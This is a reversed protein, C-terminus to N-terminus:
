CLIAKGSIKRIQGHYVSRPIVFSKTYPEIYDIFCLLKPNASKIILHIFEEINSTPLEELREFFFAIATNCRYITLNVLQNLINVLSEVDYKLFSILEENSMLDLFNMDILYYWILPSSEKSLKMYLTKHKEPSFFKIRELFPIEFCRICQNIAKKAEKVISEKVLKIAVEEFDDLVSLFEEKQLYDLYGEQGLYEFVNLNGEALRKAIEEKFIKRAANDGEETLRKLLPFALSRHLFRSDYDNEAWVQLNSCHGWFEVEPPIIQPTDGELRSDLKEAAEDISKIGEESEMQSIPVSLLLFKCQIFKKRSVYIVTKDDVLRLTIFANVKFEEM